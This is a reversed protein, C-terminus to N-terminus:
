LNNLGCEQVPFKLALGASHWEFWALFLGLGQLGLGMPPVLRRPRRGQFEGPEMSARSHSTPEYGQYSCASCALVLISRTYSLTVSKAIQVLNNQLFTGVIVSVGVWSFLM